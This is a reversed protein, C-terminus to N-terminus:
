RPLSVHWRRLVPLSGCNWHCSNWRRDANAKTYENAHKKGTDKKKKKKKKEKKKWFFVIKKEEEIKNEERKKKEGTYLGKTWTYIYMCIYMYIFSFFSLVRNTEVTLFDGKATAEERSFDALLRATVTHTYINALIHKYTRALSRKNNHINFYTYINGKAASGLRVRSFCVTAVLVRYIYIYYIIYLNSM